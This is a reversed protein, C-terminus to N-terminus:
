AITRKTIRGKIKIAKITPYAFIDLLLVNDEPPVSVEFGKV